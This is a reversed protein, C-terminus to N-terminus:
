QPPRLNAQQAAIKMRRELLADYYKGNAGDALCKLSVKIDHLMEEDSTEDILEAIERMMGLLRNDGCRDVAFWHPASM